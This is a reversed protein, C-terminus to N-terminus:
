NLIISFDSDLLLRTYNQSLFTNRVDSSEKIVMNGVHNNETWDIIDDGQNLSSM